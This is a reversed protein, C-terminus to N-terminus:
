LGNQAAFTRVKESGVLYKQFIKIKQEKVLVSPFLRLVYNRMNANRM